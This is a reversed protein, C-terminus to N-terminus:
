EREGRVGHVEKEKIQKLKQTLAKLSIAKGGFINILVDLAEITDLDTLNGRKWWDVLIARMGPEGKGERQLHGGGIVDGLNYAFDKMKQPDISYSEADDLILQWAESTIKEEVEKEEKSM